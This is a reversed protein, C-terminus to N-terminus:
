IHILSLDYVVEVVLDGPLSPTLADLRERLDATVEQSNEGMLMFALGLVAEGQGGASVAGRRIEHGIEIRAVDRVLVPTGDDSAVVINGIEEMSSVRSIGRVIRSEGATVLQGGGVNANNRRLAEIVRDMTFGYKILAQPDVM